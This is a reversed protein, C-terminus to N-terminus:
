DENVDVVRGPGPDDKALAEIAAFLYELRTDLVRMLRLMHTDLKADNRRLLTKFESTSTAARSLADLAERLDAM